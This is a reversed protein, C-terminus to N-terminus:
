FPLLDRTKGLGDKSRVAALAMAFVVDLGDIVRGFAVNKGDLPEWTKMLIMFESVNEGKNDTSKAMTVVGPADHKNIYNEDPFSDGHICKRGSWECGQEIFGGQCMFDPVVRHFESRKYGFGQEWPNPDEAVVSWSSLGSSCSGATGGGGPMLTKPTNPSLEIVIRGSGKKMPGICVDMFVIKRTGIEM